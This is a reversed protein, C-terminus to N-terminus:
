AEPGRRGGGRRPNRKPTAPRAGVREEAKERAENACERACIGVDEKRWREQHSLICGASAAAQERGKMGTRRVKGRTQRESRREGKDKAGPQARVKEHCGIHGSAEIGVQLNMM